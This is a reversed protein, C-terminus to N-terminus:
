KSGLKVIHEGGSAQQYDTRWLIFDYPDPSGKLVFYYHAKLAIGYSSEHFFSDDDHVALGLSKCFQADQFRTYYEKALACADTPSHGFAVQLELAALRFLDNVDEDDSVTWKTV